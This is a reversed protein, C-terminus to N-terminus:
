APIQFVEDLDIIAPQIYPEVIVADSQSGDSQTIWRLEDQDYGETDYDVVAVAPASEPHDVVVSRVLGGEMVVALRKCRPHSISDVSNEFAKLAMQYAEDLESWDISGGCEEGRRYADVLLRAAQFAADRHRIHIVSADPEPWEVQCESEITFELPIGADATEDYDDYLLPIEISDQWFDGQEFLTQAKVIAADRSEAEIGVMVRHEYPLTYQVIYKM